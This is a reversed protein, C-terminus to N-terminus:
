TKTGDDKRWAGCGCNCVVIGRKDEPVPPKLLELLMRAVEDPTYTANEDTMRARETPPKYHDNDSKMQPTSTNGHVTQDSM